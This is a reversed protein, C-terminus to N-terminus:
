YWSSVCVKGIRLTVASATTGNNVWAHPVLVTAAAPKDGAASITGSTEGTGLREVYWTFDSNDGASYIYVDYVSTANVPFSAGLDTCTAAGAGDNGCARLTTQAADYGVYINNLLTSPNANALATTTASVGIFARQQAVATATAFRAYFIFGGSNSANSVAIFGVTARLEAASGATAASIVDTARMASAFNVGYAPNRATLTGIATPVPISGSTDITAATPQGTWCGVSWDGAIDPPVSWPKEAPARFHPIQLGQLTAFFTTKTSNAAPATVPVLMPNSGDSEFNAIGGFAGANNYQIETTNGGPTGAPANWTNDGRYFTTASPTGTASHDAVAIQAWSPQGAANGHLVSTTAGQNATFDTVGVGACTAVGATSLSRNFQNTCSTGAYNSFGGSGNGLLVASGSTPAAFDTGAVGITPVGTGTTNKLLGTALSGLAFENSTLASATKTIFGVASLDAPAGSLQTWDVQSCTAFIGGSASIATAYLDAPCADGAYASPTGATNIVLGTGLVGLNKEASLSASAAGVWYQEGSIDTPITPTGSLNSYDIQTCTAVGSASLSKTWNNGSCSTGAYASPVGATNLVLGTALAGLNKEASLTADAAGTWYQADTPAGGGGGGVSSVAAKGGAVTCTMNTTCNVTDAYGRLTGNQQIRLGKTGIGQAVVVGAVVLAAVGGAILRNM